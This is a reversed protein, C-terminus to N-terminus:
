LKSPLLGKGDDAKLMGLLWRRNGGCWDVPWESLPVPRGTSGRGSESACLVVTGTEPSIMSSFPVTASVFVEMHDVLFGWCRTMGGWVKFGLCGRESASCADWWIVASCRDLLCSANCALMLIYRSSCTHLSSVMAAAWSMVTFYKFLMM